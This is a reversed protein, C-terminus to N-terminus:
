SQQCLTRWSGKLPKLIRWASKTANQFYKHHVLKQETVRRCQSQLLRPIRLRIPVQFTVETLKDSKNDKTIDNIEVKHSELLETKPSKVLNQHHESELERWPRPPQGRARGWRTWLPHGKQDSEPQHKRQRKVGALIVELQQRYFKQQLTPFVWFVYIENVWACFMLYSQGSMACLRTIPWLGATRGATNARAAASTTMGAATASTASCPQHLQLVAAASLWEFFLVEQAFM